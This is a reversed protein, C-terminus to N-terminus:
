LLDMRGDTLGEFMGLLNTLAITVYKICLDLRSKEGSNWLLPRNAGGRKDKLQYSAHSKKVSLWLERAVTGVHLLPLTNWYVGDNQPAILSKMTIAYSM